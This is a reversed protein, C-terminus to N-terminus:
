SGIGGMFHHVQSSLHRLKQGIVRFLSKGLNVTSVPDSVCYAFPFM